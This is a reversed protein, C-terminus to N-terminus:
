TLDTLPGDGCFDPNGFRDITHGMGHALASCALRNHSSRPPITSRAVWGSTSATASWSLPSTTSPTRTGRAWSTPGSSRPTTSCAVPEEQSPPRPSGPPSILWNSVTGAPQDPNAQRGVQDDSDPNHSLEHHGEDIGLWRMKSCRRGLQHIAPHGRPRFRGRLEQVMLDIQMKSLKPFRTTKRRSGPSSKPFPTPPPTTTPTSNRSWRASLPPTSTSFRATRGQASQNASIVKLDDQIDDM